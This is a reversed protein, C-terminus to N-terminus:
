YTSLLMPLLHATQAPPKVSDFDSRIPRGHSLFGMFRILFCLHSRDLHFEPDTIAFLIMLSCNALRSVNTALLTSLHSEMLWAHM